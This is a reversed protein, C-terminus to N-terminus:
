IQIQTKLLLLKRSRQRQTWVLGALGAFWLGLSRPEPVPSLLTPLGPDGLQATAVGSLALIGNSSGVEFGSAATLGGLPTTFFGGGYETRGIGAAFTRVGATLVPSFAPMTFSLLYKGAWEPLTNSPDSALTFGWYGDNGGDTPNGNDFEDVRVRNNSGNLTNSRSLYYFWSSSGVLNTAEFEFLRAGSGDPRLGDPNGYYARRTVPDSFDAVFDFNDAFNLDPVGNPNNINNFFDLTSSSNIYPSFRANTSLGIKAEEGQRATTFLQQVGPQSSGGPKISLVSWQLTAPSSVRSLFSDWNPSDIVFFKQYGDNQQTQIFFASMEVGLDLTYSLLNV